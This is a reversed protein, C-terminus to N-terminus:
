HFAILKAILDERSAFEGRKLLGRALTSFFLEMQNLWPAHPPTHHVHFRPTHPWGRRRRRAVHSLRTRGTSPTVSDPRFSCCGWPLTGASRM